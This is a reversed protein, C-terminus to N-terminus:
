THELLQKSRTRVRGKKVRVKSEVPFQPPSWEEWRGGSKPKIMPRGSNPSIRWLSEGPTIGVKNCATVYSPWLLTPNDPRRTACISCVDYYAANIMGCVGEEGMNQCVWTAPTPPYELMRKEKETLTLYPHKKRRPM